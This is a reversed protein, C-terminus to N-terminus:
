GPSSLEFMRQPLLELERGVYVLLADGQGALAVFGGIMMLSLGIGFINLSPVVRMLFGLMINILLVVVIVPAGFLAATRVFRLGADAITAVDPIAFQAVGVPFADLHEFLAAVMVLHGGLSFFILATFLAMLRGLAISQEGSATDFFVNLSLGMNLGALAGGVEVAAYMLRVSFGLAAGILLERLVTATVLLASDPASAAVLGLGADIAATLVIALGLRVQAPLNGQAYHPVILLLGVVRAFILAAGWIWPGFADFWAPLADM